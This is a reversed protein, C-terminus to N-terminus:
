ISFRGKLANYNQQIEDDTLVRNYALLFSVYANSYENNNGYWRGISFGNPGQSGNSNSTVLSANEYIKWTDTGIDGTGSYIRWISGGNNSPNNVWGNAYYDGHTDSGTGHHGMLWNNAYGSFIRGGGSANVYRSAGMITNNSSSLNPSPVNIYNGTTGPLVFVGGFLSSHSISGVLTGNNGNGSLDTWTTGSGPYSKSNAADLCLVLGDTVIRPNYAIGM